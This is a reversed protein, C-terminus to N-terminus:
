NVLTKAQNTQAIKGFFKENPFRQEIQAILTSLDPGQAMFEKSDQRYAYLQDGVREIELAQADQPVDQDLEQIRRLAEQMFQPNEVISHSFQFLAWHKGLHFAVYFVAVYGIFDYLTDM